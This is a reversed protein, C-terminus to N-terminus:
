LFINQGKLEDMLEKLQVEDSWARPMFLGKICNPNRVCIQIHNKKSLGAGPYLPGGEWFVGRVSDYLPTDMKYKVYHYFQIIACDLNRKLMEGSKIKKNVPMEGGQLKVVEKFPKYVKSLEELHESDTLDMCFGLDLIAGIVAPEEIKGTRKKVEEAFEWARQINNEWFYIGHGLWDYENMSPKLNGKGNVVMEAVSKDCGHFGLIFTPRKSYLSKGKM